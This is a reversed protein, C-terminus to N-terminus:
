NVKKTRDIQIKNSSLIRVHAGIDYFSICHCGIVMCKRDKLHDSKLHDCNFCKM